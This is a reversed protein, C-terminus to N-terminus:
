PDQPRGAARPPARPLTGDLPQFEIADKRLEEDEETHVSDIGHVPLAGDVADQFVSSCTKWLSWV